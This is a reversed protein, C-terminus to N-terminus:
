PQRRTWPCPNVPAPQCGNRDRQITLPENSSHLEAHLDCGSSAPAEFKHYFCQNWMGRESASSPAYHDMRRGRRLERPTGTPQGNGWLLANEAELSAVRAVLQEREAELSTMRSVLPAVQGDVLTKLRQALSRELPEEHPAGNEQALGGAAACVILLLRAPLARSDTAM